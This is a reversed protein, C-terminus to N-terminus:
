KAPAWQGSSAVAKQKAATPGATNFDKELETILRETAEGIYEEPAVERILVGWRGPTVGSANLIHKGSLVRSPRRFEFFMLPFPPALCSFDAARWQEKDSIAYMYEAVNEASIVQAKTIDSKILAGTQNVQQRALDADACSYIDAVFRGELVSEAFTRM